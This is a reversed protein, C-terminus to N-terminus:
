KRNGSMGQLQELYKSSEEQSVENMECEVRESPVEFCVKVLCSKIGELLM